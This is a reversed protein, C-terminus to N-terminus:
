HGIPGGAGSEEHERALARATRVEAAGHDSRLVVQKIPALVDATAHLDHFIEHAFVACDRAVVFIPDTQCTAPFRQALFTALAGLASLAKDIDDFEAM